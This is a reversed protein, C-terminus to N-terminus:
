FTVLKVLDVRHRKLQLPCAIFSQHGGLWRSCIRCAAFLAWTVTPQTATARSNAVRARIGSTVRRSAFLSVVAQIAVFIAPVIFLVVLIRTLHNRCRDGCAQSDRAHDEDHPPPDDRGHRAQQDGRAPDAVHVRATCQPRPHPSAFHFVGMESLVANEFGTQLLVHPVGLKEVPFQGPSVRSWRWARHARLSRSTCNDAQGGTRDLVLHGLEKSITCLGGSRGASLSWM